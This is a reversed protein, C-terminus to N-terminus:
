WGATIKLGLESMRLSKFFKDREVKVGLPGRLSKLHHLGLTGWETELWQFIGTLVKTSPDFETVYFTWNTYCMFYKAIIVPDEIDQQAGTRAFKKKLAVTLLKM